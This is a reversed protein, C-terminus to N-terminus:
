LARRLIHALDPATQFLWRGGREVLNIGRGAYRETLQALAGKVDADAGVYAAIEAPTLPETAAFITAEVARTLDDAPDLDISM